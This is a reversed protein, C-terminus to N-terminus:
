NGIQLVYWPKAPDSGQNPGATGLSPLVLVKTRDQLAVAPTSCCQLCYLYSAFICYIVYM